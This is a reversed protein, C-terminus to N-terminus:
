SAHNVEAGRAQQVPPDEAQLRDLNIQLQIEFRRVDYDKLLETRTYNLTVESFLPNKSLKDILQSIRMDDPGIGVVTLRAINQFKPPNAPDGVFGSGKIAESRVDIATRSLAMGPTMDNQIQHLVSSMPVTAGLERYALELRELRHVENRLDSVRQDLKGVIQAQQRLEDRRQTMAALQSKGTVTWAGMAAALALLLGLRLNLKRRDRGKQLYWQPLLNVTKM